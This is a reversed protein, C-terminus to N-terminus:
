TSRWDKLFVAPIFGETWLVGSVFAKFDKSDYKETITTEWVETELCLPDLVLGHCRPQRAVRSPLLWGCGGSMCFYLVVFLLFSHQPKDDPLVFDAM